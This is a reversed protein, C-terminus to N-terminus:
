SAAFIVCTITRMTQKKNNFEKQAEINGAYYASLFSDTIDNDDVTNIGKRIEHADGWLDSYELSAAFKIKEERSLSDLVDLQSYLNIAGRHNGRDHSLNAAMRLLLINQPWQKLLKILIANAQAFSGLDIFVQVLDEPGILFGLDRNFILVGIDHASLLKRYFEHALTIASDFDTQAISKIRSIEHILQIGHLNSDKDNEDGNRINIEEIYSKFGLKQGVSFLVEKTTLSIRESGKEDGLIKFLASYNKLYQLKSLDDAFIKSGNNQFTIDDYPYVETFKRALLIRLNQDGIFHMEILFSVFNELSPKHTKMEISDMLLNRISINMMLLHALLKPGSDQVSYEILENILTNRNEALEYVVTFITELIKKPNTFSYSGLGLQEFIKRWSNKKGFSAIKESIQYIEGLTNIKEIPQLYASLNTSEVEFYDSLSPNNM